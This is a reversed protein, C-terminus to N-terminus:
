TIDTFTMVFGGDPMPNGQIKIVKGDQRERESTHPTGNRMHQVRM